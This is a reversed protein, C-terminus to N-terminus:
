LSNVQINSDMLSEKMVKELYKRISGIESDALNEFELHFLFKFSHGAYPNPKVELINAQSAITEGEPLSFLVRPLTKGPRINENVKNFLVNMSVHSLSALVGSELIGKIKVEIGKASLDVLMNGQSDKTPIVPPQAEEKREIKPKKNIELVEAKQPAEGGAENKRGESVQAVSQKLRELMKIKEKELLERLEQRKSQEEQKLREEMSKKEKLAWAKLREEFEVKKKNVIQNFKEQWGGVEAELKQAADQEERASEAKQALEYRLREEEGSIRAQMAEKLKKEEEELKRGLEQRKREEEQKLKGALEEKLSAEEESIRGELERHQKELDNFKKRVENELREEIKPMLETVMLKPAKARKEDSVPKATEVLVLGTPQLASTIEIIRADILPKELDVWEKFEKKLLEATANLKEIRGQFSTVAELRTESKKIARILEQQEALREQHEKQEKKLKQTLRSIKDEAIQSRGSLANVSTKLERIEEELRAIREGVAGEVEQLIDEQTLRAMDLSGQLLTWGNIKGSYRDKLTQGMAEIDTGATVLEKLEERLTELEREKAILEKDSVVRYKLLQRSLKSEEEVEARLSAIQREKGEFYTKVSKLSKLDMSLADELREQERALFKHDLGKEAMIVEISDLSHNIEKRRAKYEQPKEKLKRQLEELEVQLLINKEMHNKDTKLSMLM